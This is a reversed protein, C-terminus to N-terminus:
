YGPNQKLNPNKDISSQPIPLYRNYPAFKRTEILSLVGPEIVARKYPDAENYNITGTIRYLNSNLLNEALMKGSSDKWRLIDAKRLGEGALEITRERRILERLTEKTGYKTRNVTPMSVRARIKDLVKYVDDSPGNLENEAEAFSLLVEAYRFVIPCAGTDWINSYQDMPALYKSWSLATKSANDLGEPYNDNSIGNIEKDLTNLVVADKGQAQWMQGPFLITMEMRPDRDKFPYKPDYIDSEEKTSGDKMEYMDVLNQTPVISSWGGDVNNYMQGIVGLGQLNELYQVSLIIENSSKGKLTFLEAYNPHLDYKKMDIIAQAADKARQYDGWYLASRMKIALGTAKAVRGSESPTEKLDPILADLEDYIYKKVEEETNRPVKAEEATTYSAIIPVGGYWFNMEFYKYARIARIQSILDKKEAEDTFSINEINELFDNCRRITTFDYFSAGTNSASLKGNGHVTWKEWPFNNYGIDSACDQYLITYGDLWKNYCGVAFSRADTESNWTTAPSLADYPATDLFDSCSTTSVVITSCILISSLLHKM